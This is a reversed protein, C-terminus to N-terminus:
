SKPFIEEGMGSVTHLNSQGQLAMSERNFAPSTITRNMMFDNGSM